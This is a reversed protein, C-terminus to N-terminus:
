KKRLVATDYPNFGESAHDTQSSIDIIKLEPVTPDYESYIDPMEVDPVVVSDDSFNVSDQETNEPPRENVWNFIKRMAANQRSACIM